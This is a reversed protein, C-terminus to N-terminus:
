QRLLLLLTIRPFSNLCNDNAIGADANAPALLDLVGVVSEVFNAMVIVQTLLHLHPGCLGLLPPQHFRVRVRSLHFM